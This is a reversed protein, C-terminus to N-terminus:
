TRKTGNSMKNLKRCKNRNRVLKKNLSVSREVRLLLFRFRFTSIAVYVLIVDKYGYVM